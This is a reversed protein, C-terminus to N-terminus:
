LDRGSQGRENRHRPPRPRASKRQHGPRTPLVAWSGMARLLAGLNNLSTATDPHDPGLVKERIDLARQYYPRAEALNGMAQLLYGLNNLSLATDPHNPGLAKEKIDLARQYYPRAEALNGM